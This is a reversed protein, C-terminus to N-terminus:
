RGPLEHARPGSFRRDPWSSVLHAYDGSIAQTFNPLSNATAPASIQYGQDQAGAFMLDPSVASTLTGYYQANMFGLRTVNDPETTTPTVVFTGGDSHIYIREDTGGAGPICTFGFIDAHLKHQPNGYYEGWHNIMPLTVGGDMSRYCIVGGVFVQQPDTISATLSGYYDSLPGRTLWNVGGDTSAYLTTAGGVSIASYFTPAGAESGALRIEGTAPLTGVPTFTSGHDHSRSIQNGYALYLPGVASRSIWM